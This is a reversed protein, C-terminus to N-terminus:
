GASNQQPSLQRKRRSRRLESGDVNIAARTNTTRNQAEDPDLDDEQMVKADAPIVKISTGRAAIVAPSNATVLDADKTGSDNPCDFNSGNMAPLM